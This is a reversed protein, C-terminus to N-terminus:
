KKDEVNRRYIEQLGRITLDPDFDDIIPTGDSFLQALGGTAVVHMSQGYEGKIRQVIGEILGIYGWYIGSQMAPVTSKAIVQEPKSVAILPLQAAAKHLSELSLNRLVTDIRVGLRRTIVIRNM